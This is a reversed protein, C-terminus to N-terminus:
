HEQVRTFLRFLARCNELEGEEMENFSDLGYSQLAKRGAETSNMLLLEERVRLALGEDLDERLSVILTPLPVSEGIIVLEKRYAEPNIEQVDWASSSLAGADMKGHFVWNTINLPDGAFLYGVEGRPVPADSSRLETLTLGESRITLVPLFFGTTSGRGKLALSRGELDSISEIGSDRRTFIHCHEESEGRRKGMLLPRAGADRAFLMTEYPAAFVVDIKGRKLYSTITDTERPVVAVGKAIGLEDLRSSLYSVVPRLLRDGRTASLDTKGITLLTKSPSEDCLAPAATNLSLLLAYLAAPACARRWDVSVM